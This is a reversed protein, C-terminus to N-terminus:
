PNGCVDTLLIRRCPDVTLILRRIGAMGILIESVDQHTDILGDVTLSNEDFRISGPARTLKIVRGDALHADAVSTTLQHLKLKEFIRRQVLLFGSYGTDVVAITNGKRPHSVGLLPNRLKIPLGLSSDLFPLPTM